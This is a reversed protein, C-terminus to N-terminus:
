IQKPFKNLDQPFPLREETNDSLFNQNNDFSALDAHINIDVNRYETNNRSKVLEAVQIFQKTFNDALFHDISQYQNASLNSM